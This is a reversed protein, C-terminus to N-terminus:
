WNMPMLDEIGGSKGLNGDCGRYDGDGRKIFEECEYWIEASAPNWKRGLFEVVSSGNNELKQKQIEHLIKKHLM